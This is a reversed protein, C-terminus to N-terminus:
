QIQFLEDIYSARTQNSYSSRCSGTGSAMISFCAGNGYQAETHGRGLICHGLEHFVVFERYLTSLRNWSSRDIEIRGPAHSHYYCVGLVNTEDIDAFEVRVGLDDVDIFIGRAAAESEFTSVFRQLQNDVPSSELPEDQECGILVWSLLGVFILSNKVM